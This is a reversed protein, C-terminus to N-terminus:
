YYLVNLLRKNNTVYAVSKDSRVILHQETTKATVNLSRTMFMEDDDGAMLLSRQKSGATDCSAVTRRCRTSLVRRDCRQCCAIFGYMPESDHNRGVGGSNSTENRTPLPNGDSYQWSTQYPFVLITHSASLSFHKFIHKNTEVSDMFTVSVCVSLRISPRVSCSHMHRAQM